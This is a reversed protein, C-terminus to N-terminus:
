RAMQKPTMENKEEDEEDIKRSKRIVDAMGALTVESLIRGAKKETIQTDCIDREKRGSENYIEIGENIMLQCTQIATNIDGEGDNSEGTLKDNWEKLSGFREQLESEVNLNYAVPYKVGDSEIYELMEKTKMKAEKFYATM